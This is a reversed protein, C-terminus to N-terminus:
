VHIEDTDIGVMSNGRLQQEAEAAAISESVAASAVQGLVVVVGVTAAAGLVFLVPSVSKNAAERMSGVAAGASVYAVSGPLMGFFSGIFYDKWSLSTLGYFYSSLSFPLLPSLRLLFVIRLGDRGIAQDVAHWKPHQSALSEIYQRVFSRALLFAGLAAATSAFVIIISGEVVGFLYGCALTLPTAPVGLLELVFYLLSFLAIATPRRLSNFYESLKVYTSMSFGGCLCFIGLIAIVFVVAVVFIWPGRSGSADSEGSQPSSTLRTTETASERFENRTGASNTGNLPEAFM